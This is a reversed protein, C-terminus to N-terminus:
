AKLPAGLPDTDIAGILTGPEPGSAHEQWWAKAQASDWEGASAAKSLAATVEAVSQFRADREKALCRAIVSELDVPIDGNWDRLHPVPATLHAEFLEALTEREFPPRGTLMFCAVGGLSYIDSRADPQEGRVQEPSMFAPTGMLQGALTLHPEAVRAARGSAPAPDSVEGYVLGFDLLKIFDPEGGRECVFINGPKVDRHVLGKRHAEALAGCVQLMLYVVRGPPLPGHSRVLADLTTGPLYEMAYFFSDDETRGFDYVEVTNPHTLQAMAQVEREFRVLWDQSGAQEPRIVKVACPRRLLHHQALHVEGMAGKGLLRILRYQGVQRAEFVARRLTAFRLSIYLTVSSFVGVMFLCFLLNGALYPRLAANEQAAVLVTAGSVLVVAAVMAAGRRLTNPVVLGYLAGVAGWFMAVPNCIQATPMQFYAIRDPSVVWYVRQFLEGLEESSPAVLAAGRTLWTHGWGFLAMAASVNLAVEFRRLRSLSPARLLVVWIGLCLLSLSGGAVGLLPGGSLLKPAGGFIGFARTLAIFVILHLVLAWLRIRQQLFQRQEENWTASAGQGFTIRAVRQSVPPSSPPRALLSEGVHHALLSEVEKRLDANGACERELAADRQPPPLSQVALFVEKIRAHRAADM